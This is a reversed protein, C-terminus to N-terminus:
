VLFISQTMMQGPIILMSNQKQRPRHEDWWKSDLTFFRDIQEEFAPALSSSPLKWVSKLLIKFIRTEYLTDGKSKKLIQLAQPSGLEKRELNFLSQVHM